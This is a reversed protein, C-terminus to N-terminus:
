NLGSECGTGISVRIGIEHRRARSKGSNKRHPNCTGNNACIDLKDFCIAELSDGLVATHELDLSTIAAVQSNVLRVPDYRGGIGAEFVCVECRERYFIDVTAAFLIEFAAFSQQPHSDKYEHVFLEVRAIAEDLTERSIERGDIKVREEYRYLHPSTFLGTKLHHARAIEACMAATSGKGNSGTIAIGSRALWTRDVNLSSLLFDVRALGIGSGFRPANILM